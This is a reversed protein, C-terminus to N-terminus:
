DEIFSQLFYCERSAHKICAYREISTFLAWDAIFALKPTKRLKSHDPPPQSHISSRASPFLNEHEAGRYNFDREQLLTAAHGFTM